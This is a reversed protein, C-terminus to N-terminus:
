TTNYVDKSLTWVFNHNNLETKPSITVHLPYLVTTLLDPAILLFLHHTINYNHVRLSKWGVLSGTSKGDLRTLLFLLSSSYLGCWIM